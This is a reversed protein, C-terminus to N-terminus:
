PFIDVRQNALFICIVASQVFFLGSESFFILNKSKFHRFFKLLKHFIFLHIFLFFDTEKVSVSKCECIMSFGIRKEMFRAIHYM